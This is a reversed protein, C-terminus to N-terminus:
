TLLSAQSGDVHVTVRVHCYLLATSSISIAGSVRGSSARTTSGPELLM